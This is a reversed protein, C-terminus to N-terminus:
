KPYGPFSRIEDKLAETLRDAIQKSIGMMLWAIIAVATTYGAPGEAALELALKRSRAYVANAESEFSM